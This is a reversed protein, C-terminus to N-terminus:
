HSTLSSQNQQKEIRYRRMRNGGIMGLAGVLMLYATTPEPTETLSGQLSVPIGVSQSYIILFPATHPINLALTQPFTSTDTPFISFGLAYDGDPSGIPVYSTAPFFGFDINNASFIETPSGLVPDAGATISITDYQGLTTDVIIYGTVPTGADTTTVGTLAYTIVAASLNSTWLGFGFIIARTYLGIKNKKM